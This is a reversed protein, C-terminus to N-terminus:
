LSEETTDYCIKNGMDLRWPRLIIETKIESRGRQAFSRDSNGRVTRKRITEIWRGAGSEQQLCCTECPITFFLFSFGIM